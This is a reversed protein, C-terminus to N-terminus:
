AYSIEGIFGYNNATVAERAAAVEKREATMAAFARGYKSFSTKFIRNTTLANTLWLPMAGDTKIEMLRAGESIIREGYVGKELALDYDRWLINTDFTIRLNKEENAIFAERDYFICCSPAVDRYFDMFYAIEETIQSFPKKESFFSKAEALTMAERRKYVVSDYKKKLELFVRGDEKPVGYSRLRLKEKYFPKEESRRVIRYTPTDFYLNLISTKGYEDPSVRGCCARKMAAYQEPSLLYKIEYRKFKNQIDM